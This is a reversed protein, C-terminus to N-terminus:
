DSSVGYEREAVDVDGALLRDAIDNESEGVSEIVMRAGGRQNWSHKYANDYYELILACAPGLQGTEILEIARTTREHGLRARIKEAAQKLDGISASGYISVLHAVREEQPRQLEILRASAM